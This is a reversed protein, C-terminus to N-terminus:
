TFSTSTKAEMLRYVLAAAMMVEAAVGAVMCLRRVHPVRLRRPAFFHLEFSAYMFLSLAIGPVYRVNSLTRAHLTLYTCM